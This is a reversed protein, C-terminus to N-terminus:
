HSHAGPQETREARPLDLAALAAAERRLEVPDLVQGGLIVHTLRHVVRIDKSLDGRFLALDARQGPAIRGVDPTGLAASAQGTSAHIVEVPTLGAQVLLEFERYLSTGPPTGPLPTDTGTLVRVGRRHALGVWRGMGEAAQRAEAAEDPTVRGFVPLMAPWETWLGPSVAERGGLRDLGAAGLGLAEHVVLTPNLFFRDRRTEWADLTRRTTADRGSFRAWYGIRKLLLVDLPYAAAIAPDDFLEVPHVRVHELHAIGADIAAVSTINLPVHGILPVGAERSAEAIRRLADWGVWNHVKLFDVGHALTEALQDELASGSTLFRLGSRSGDFLQGSQFLRPLAPETTMWARIDRLAALSNGTDRARTVGHALLARLIWRARVPENLHVHLDSLGPTLTLGRADLHQAGAREPAAGRGVATIRDGEIVVWGNRWAPAGSGDIVTANSIILPGQQAALQTCFGLLLTLLVAVSRHDRGRPARISCDAPSTIM